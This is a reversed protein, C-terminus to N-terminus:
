SDAEFDEPELGFEAAMAFYAGDPTDEDVITEFVERNVKKSRSGTLPNRKQRM